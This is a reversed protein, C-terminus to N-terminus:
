CPTVLYDGIPGGPGRLGRRAVADIDIVAGSDIEGWRDRIFDFGYIYPERPTLEGPMCTFALSGDQCSENLPAILLYKHARAPSIGANEALVRVEEASAFAPISIFMAYYVKAAYQLGIIKATQM